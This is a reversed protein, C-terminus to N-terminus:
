NLTMNFTSSATEDFPDAATVVVNYFGANSQDSTGTIIGNSSLQVGDPLGLSTFELDDNDPDSFFRNTDFIFNGRAIIDPIQTAVPPDNDFEPSNEITLTFGNSATALGDNVTIQVFWNGTTANDNTNEDTSDPSSDVTDLIAIQLSGDDDVEISVSAPLDQADVSYLLQDNDDDQFFMSIDTTQDFTSNDATRTFTIDPLSGLTQPESNSNTILITASSQVIHTGDTVEYVFSDTLTENDAITLSEDATYTFSGDTELLFESAFRPANVPETLVSLPANRVDQDDLDNALLNDIDDISVTRSVGTLARYNDNVTDPAENISIACIVQEREVALGDSTTASLLYLLAVPAQLRPVNITFDAQDDNEIALIQVDCDTIDTCANALSDAALQSDFGSTAACMEVANDDELTWSWSSPITAGSVVLARNSTNEQLSAAVNEEIPTVTSEFAVSEVTSDDSSSNASDVWGCASLSFM